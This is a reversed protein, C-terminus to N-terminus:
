QQGFAILFMTQASSSFNIGVSSMNVAAITASSSSTQSVVAVMINNMSQAISGWRTGSVFATAFTVLINAGSIAASTINFGEVVTCGGAGDTTLTAWAKPINKASLHNLEATTSAPNETCVVSLAQFQKFTGGSTGNSSNYVTSQPAWEIGGDIKSSSGPLGLHHQQMLGRLFPAVDGSSDNGQGSNLGATGLGCAWVRSASVTSDSSEVQIVYLPIAGTDLTVSAATTTPSNASFQVRGTALRGSPQQMPPNTGGPGQLPQSPLAANYYPLVANYPASSSANPDDTATEDVQVPVVEILYYHSGSGPKTVVLDIAPVIFQVAEATADAAIDGYGTLSGAGVSVLASYGAVEAPTTAAAWQAATAQVLDTQMSTYVSGPCILVHLATPNNLQINFGNVIAPPYSIPSPATIGAHDLMSSYLNDGLLGPGDTGTASDEYGGLTDTIGFGFGVFTRRWGKLDDYSRKIQGTYEQSRDM